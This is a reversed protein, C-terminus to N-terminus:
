GYGSFRSIKSGLTKKLVHPATKSDSGLWMEDLLCAYAGALKGKM